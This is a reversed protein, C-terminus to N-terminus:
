RLPEEGVGIKRLMEVQVKDMKSSFRHRPTERPPGFTEISRRHAGFPGLPSGETPRPYSKLTPQAKPASLRDTPHM